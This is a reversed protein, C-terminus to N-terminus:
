YANESLTIKEKFTGLAKLRLSMPPVTERDIRVDLLTPGRRALIAAMDLAEFDGPSEIIFGPVNMSEAQKAFDVPRLEYATREAGGLRQGHMVMGYASDNLIVFIVPLGEQAAITMEQGCMLYAGDGTICVTPCAPNGRSVGIAAGIAWGMPSFNMNLRLWSSKHSRQEIHPYNAAQQYLHPERRNRPQLFHPAWIMSNGTDALFRTHPPFRNSLEKMLRQPKIPTANSDYHQVDEYSLQPNLQNNTQAETKISSDTSKAPAHYHSDDILLTILKACVSRIHGRVHLRAMPSRMLNEEFEDVHVLKDNLISNCWGGSSLEDFGTGFAIVLDANDRLCQEASAHGGFGFVGRYAEHHPNILGKADPATIFRAGTIQVLKIVLDIAETAGSGIFFVPNDARRIELLLRDIAAEDIMLPRKNMIDLLNYRLQTSDLPSRLIDVPISLHVAGQPAQFAKSIANVLKTEVQSIHSVLSNYRTCHRFMGIVDVGTCSSEQVAGRGFSPLAPQGTIVLLPINNDYACAVGTILNTAGPGSIGACVGLKGTERMYGDAMYAAGTEHCAMVARPGGRRESRALANYLPEVTGGPVGFVYDVGIQELYRVILESADFPSVSSNAISQILTKDSELLTDM